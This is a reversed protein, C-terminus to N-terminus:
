LRQLGESYHFQGGASIIIVDVNNLQNILQLGKKIGLVFVTTSLADATTSDDALISVSQIANNPSHGTKPNLIHHYRKGDEIFFREYDGSTSLAVNELPIRLIQQTTQRPNKIAVVWPKGKKDGILRSDGGATIIAHQVGKSQLFDCVKDVAHGKGIGGLDIKLDPHTFRISQNKHNLKIAKYNISQLHKKIVKKDPHISNQYDYKFGISAFSIDFAGQSLQSITQAKELLKFLTSSVHIAQSFAHQNIHYLESSPDLPNMSSDVKHLIKLSQSLLSEANNEAWFEIHINSGMIATDHAIWQAQCVSSFLATSILLIVLRFQIVHKIFM